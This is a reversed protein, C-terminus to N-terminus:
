KKAEDSPGEILTEAERYLIHAVLWDHWRRDDPISFRDDLLRKAEVLSQRAAAANGMHHLSM